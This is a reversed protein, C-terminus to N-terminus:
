QPVEAKLKALKEKAEALVILDPDGDKWIDRFKEYYEMARRVDGKQQYLVGMQYHALIWYEQTESGLRKKGVFEQYKELAEDLNGRSFQSLALPELYIDPRLSHALEFMKVAEDLNGRALEVEGKLAHHDAQDSRQWRSVGDSTFPDGLREDMKALLKEADEIRGERAFIRGIILLWGPGANVAKELKIAAAMEREFPNMMGKSLYVKALYLRNRMESLPQGATRNILMADKFHGMAESYRGFYMSLLGLSRYGMSKKQDHDVGTMKRFTQAAEETRGMRILLNGYEHNVFLGTFEEPRSTFAKQYYELAEENEQMMNYCSAINIYSAWDEPDIEVARNFSEIAQLSRKTILYAYGLRFWARNDDPYQILYTSYNEIGQERNGRWDEVVARIWLRERVTLRDLLSLARTFHKEGEEPNNAIYYQVGLDAHAMAFDPDLEIAQKYLDNRTSGTVRQGESLAKLAELSSTTAAPLELSAETISAMSEGLNQRVGQALEDLARLVNNKGEARVTETHVPTQTSPDMIQAALLYANGVKSISCVLLGKIRERLAIESGLEVDLREEDKRRMRALTQQVRTRPFVNVYQSQQISVTLATNLSGDFVDEGTINEFDTILIWDREEFALAAAPSKFYRDQVWWSIGALTFVLVLVVLTLWVPRLARAIGSPAAAVRAQSIHELDTRVDHASQYRRAPDKTLLKAVVHQLLDPIGHTYRALPPPTENLIADATDMPSSKRMPDVGSLMEYLLIGFSFIDSRTDAPLGRVQEPSMYALTGPAVGPKTLASSATQEVGEVGIEGRRALGFDMVKVHGSRTSMINAPKLDRHIIGKDHAAELAEAIASSIALCEKIPLPGRALKDRLTQGDIYEMVIFSRGDFEGIEHISCVNPHDIAAATRAERLFRKRAVTNQEMEEPLFKIAVKRQLSSDEALYVEGMGGRGLEELIRYHSFQKGLM